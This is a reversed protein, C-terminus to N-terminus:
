RLDRRREPQGLLRHPVVDALEQAPEAHVGPEGGDGVPPAVPEDLGALDLRIRDSADCNTTPQTRRSRYGVAARRLRSAKRAPVARPAATERRDCGEWC